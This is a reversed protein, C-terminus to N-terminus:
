VPVLLRAPLWGEFAPLLENIRRAAQSQCHQSAILQFVESRIMWLEQANRAGRIRLRLRECATGSCDHLLALTLQRLEIMDM